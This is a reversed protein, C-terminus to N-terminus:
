VSYRQVLTKLNNAQTQVDRTSDAAMKTNNENSKAVDVISKIKQNIEECAQTQDVAGTSIDRNMDNIKEVELNISELVQCVRVNESHTKHSSDQISNITKITGAVHEHLRSIMADIEETSSQTKSALARVEDAVVAFGRGAEGARAAEIAANLALLNTQEAINRIVDLVSGINDSESNLQEIMDVGTDVQKGLTEIVTESHQIVSLATHVDDKTKEAGKAAIVAKESVENVSTFINQMADAVRASKERQHATGDATQQMLHNLSMVSKESAQASESVQVIIHQIHDAFQNFYKALLGLEDEREVTLRKSLDGDGSSINHMASVTNDLPVLISRSVFYGFLVAIILMLVSTALANVLISQQQQKLELRMAAIQEEITEMYFGTGIIWGWKPFDEAYGLKEAQQNQTRPNPWKFDVFGDGSRASEVVERSIYRGDALQFNYLNKGILSPKAGHALCVSDYNYAYFYGEKGDYRLRNIIEIAQQKVAPDTVNDSEYLPMLATRIIQMYNKLLARKEQQLTKKFTAIDDEGLQKVQNIGQYTLVSCLLLTPVIALLIIRLKISLKNM